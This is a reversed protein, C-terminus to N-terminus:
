WWRASCVSSRSRGAAAIMVTFVTHGAPIAYPNPASGIQPVDIGQDLFVNGSVLVANLLDAVLLARWRRSPLRGDPFLLPLLMALSTLLPIFAWGSVWASFNGLPAGGPQRLAWGAYVGAWFVGDMAVASVLLLWGVANTPRRVALLLGCGAFAIAPVAPALQYAPGRGAFTAFVGVGVGALSVCALTIAAAAVALKGAATM